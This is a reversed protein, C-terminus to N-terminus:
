KEGESSGGIKAHKLDGNTEDYYFIHVEDDRLVISNSKGVDLPVDEGESAQVGAGDITQIVWNQADDSYAYILNKDDEEYYSFHFRGDGDIALDCDQIDGAVDTSLQADVLWQPTGTEFSAKWYYLGSGGTGMAVHIENGVSVAAIRAAYYNGIETSSTLTNWGLNLPAWDAVAPDTARITLFGDANKACIVVKGNDLALIEPNSRVNSVTPVAAWGTETGMWPAYWLDGQTGEYSANKLYAVHPTGQTDVVISPSAANNGTSDIAQLNDWDAYSVGAALLVALLVGHKKM